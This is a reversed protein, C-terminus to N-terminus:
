PGLNDGSTSAHNGTIVTFVDFTFSGLDYAGGGSGMGDSSTGPGGDAANHQIVGAAVTASAGSAIYCGGGLGNGGQVGNGGLALNTDLKTQNVTATGGPGVFLGGGDGDGGNAGSGGTGGLASNGLLVSTSLSLSSTDPFGFYSQDAVAIGGGFGEGGVAGDGGTGGQAGNALFETKTVTATSGFAIQMGGGTALGGAVGSAGGGALALNGILTSNSLMLTSSPGGIGNSVSIGGGGAPGGTGGISFGGRAVNGLIACNTMTMNAGAILIIGGGNGYENSGSLNGFTPNVAGSGGIAENDAIICGTMSVNAGGDDMAGGLGQGSPTNFASPAPADNGGIAENATFGCNTVNVNTAPSLGTSPTGLLFIAGGEASGALGGVAENGTFTCKSLTLNCGEAFMAGGQGEGPAGGTGVNNTFACGTIIATASFEVDIAAADGFTFGSAGTARNNSFTSDFVALTSNYLQSPPFGFSMIAGGYSGDYYSGSGGGTVQNGTFVCQKVTASGLNLVAGGFADTGASATAVNDTLVSNKLTLGAGVENAIAGGNAANPTTATGTGGVAVNDSLVCHALTLTGFNDIGGGQVAQGDAITLGTVSVTTGSSIDFVRSANNGSITLKDAGPGNISVNNSLLLEGSTLTITGHLNAAFGIMSAGSAADAAAVAARLSGPGGDNLNLVKFSSPLTRDELVM